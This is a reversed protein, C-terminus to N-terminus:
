VQAEKGTLDPCEMEETIPPKFSVARRTGLPHGVVMLARGEGAATRCTAAM